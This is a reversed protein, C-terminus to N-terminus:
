QCRDRQAAWTLGVNADNRCARIDLEVTRGDVRNAAKLSRVIARISRM